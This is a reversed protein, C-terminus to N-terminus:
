LYHLILAQNAQPSLRQQKVGARKAWSEKSNLASNTDALFNKPGTANIIWLATIPGNIWAHLLEICDFHLYGAILPVSYKIGQFKAPTIVHVSYMNSSLAHQRKDLTPEIYLIPDLLKPSLKEKAKPKHPACKKKKQGNPQTALKPKSLQRPKDNGILSDGLSMGDSGDPFGFFHKYQGQGPTPPALTLSALPKPAPLSSQIYKNSKPQKNKPSRRPAM